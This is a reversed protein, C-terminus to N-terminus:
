VQSIECEVENIYTQLLNTWDEKGFLRKELLVRFQRFKRKGVPPLICM